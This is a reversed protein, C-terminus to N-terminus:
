KTASKKAKAKNKPVKPEPKVKVLDRLVERYPLPHLSLKKMRDM